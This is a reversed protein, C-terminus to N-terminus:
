DLRPVRRGPSGHAPSYGRMEQERHVPKGREPLIITYPEPLVAGLKLAAMMLFLVIAACALADRYRSPVGYLGYAIGAIALARLWAPLRWTRQGRRVAPLFSQLIGWSAYAALSNVALLTM